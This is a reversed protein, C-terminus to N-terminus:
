TKKCMEIPSNTYNNNISKLMIQGDVEVIEVRDHISICNGKHYGNTEYISRGTPWSIDLSVKQNPNSKTYRIASKIRKM